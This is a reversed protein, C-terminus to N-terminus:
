RTRNRLLLCSRRSPLEHGHPGRDLRAVVELGARQATHVEESPDGTETDGAHSAVLAHGGPRTVRAIERYAAARETPDLHILAHLCIVGALSAPAVPLRALDGVAAPLRRDARAHRCRAESRDFAVVRTGRSALHGGVRGPGTGVDAVPGGACLEAFLDLLARDLPTGALDDGITVTSRDAVAEHSERRADCPGPPAAPPSAAWYGAMLQRSWAPQRVQGRAAFEAMYPKIDVVPTGDIADLGRVTVRLGDVAALRCVSVGIRNPRAKARQAFIGVEPWDRNGRPRRAGTQVEDADVRDFVYVVEVHSFDDLGRLADPTFRDADLDVTATVADWDDDIPEVRPSRVWGIAELEPSRTRGALPEREEADPRGAGSRPHHSLTAGEM